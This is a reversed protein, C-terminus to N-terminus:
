PLRSALPALIGVVVSGDASVGEASSYRGGLTGLDVMGGSTWRFAHWDANGATYATGVVVSGDASIGRVVPLGGGLTGFDVMDGGNTWRFVRRNADNADSAHGVVVLGDGSVGPAMFAWPYRGAGLDEIGSQASASLPLALLPTLALRLAFALRRPRSPWSRQPRSYDNIRRSM